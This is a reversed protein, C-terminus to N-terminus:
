VEGYSIRNCVVGLFGYSLAMGTLCVTDGVVVLVNGLLSHTGQPKMTEGGVRLRM